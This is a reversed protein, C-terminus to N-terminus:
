NLWHDLKKGTIKSLLQIDKKFDQKLRQIFVPDLSPRQANQRNFNRVISILPGLSIGFNLRMSRVINVIFLPPTQSIKAMWKWRYKKNSNINPFDIKGDDPVELFNLVDLYMKRPNNKLEELWIFHINEQSFFSLLRNVQFGMSAIGKYLLVKVDRCGPPVQKGKKRENQLEWATQFDNMDENCNFVMESHQSYALQIPERLMVIIRADPNFEKIKKVATDSYLYYVSAEGIAKHSNQANSFLQLYDAMTEVFRYRPFDTAFFHIEKPDSMFVNPHTRLYESLSTTGAKPAGIIFFNPKM